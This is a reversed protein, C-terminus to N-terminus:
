AVHLPSVEPRLAKFSTVGMRVQFCDAPAEEGQLWFRLARPVDLGALHSFPYGGGFRANMELLYLEGHHERVDVDVLGPHRLASSLRRGIEALRPDEVTRAADTEGSRMALKRKAVAIRFEGALDNVVDLGYEPGDLHQQYLVERHPPGPCEHRLYTRSIDRLIRAEFVALEAANEAVYVGISGMGRRPKVVVPYSLWGEALARRVEVRDALTVPSALGHARAFRDTELKDNCCAVAAETSVVVRIGVEEFRQTARALIPLDQDFLPVISRIGHRVGYELLFDLYDPHHIPPTLVHRDAHFLATADPTSNAAHVEGWGEWAARFYDILYSRRGSSTLLVNCPARRVGGPGDSQSIPDTM